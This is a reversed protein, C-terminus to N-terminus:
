AAADMPPKASQRAARVADAKSLTKGRAGSGLWEDRLAGRVVAFAPLLVGMLVFLMSALDRVIRDSWRFSGRAAKLMLREPSRKVIAVARERGAEAILRLKALDEPTDADRLLHVAGAPSTARAMAGIEALDAALGRYAERDVIRSFALTAAAGDDAISEGGDRFISEIEGRLAFPPAALDLKDQMAAGFASPLRASTRAIKIVSAGLRVDDAAPDPSGFALTAGNLAFLFTDIPEGNIWRRAQSALERSDGLLDFSGDVGTRGVFRFRDQAVPELLPGVALLVDNDDAGPRLARSLKINDRGAVMSPALLAFGRAAAADGEDLERLVIGSWAQTRNEAGDVFREAERALERYTARKNAETPSYDILTNSDLALALSAAAFPAAFLSANFVLGLAAESAVAKLQRPMTTRVGIM